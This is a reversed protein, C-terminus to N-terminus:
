SAADEQRLEEERLCDDAHELANAQKEHEDALKNFGLRRWERARARADRALGMLISM